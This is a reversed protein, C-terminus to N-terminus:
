SKNYRDRLPDLEFAVSTLPLSKNVEFPKPDVRLDSVKLMQTAYQEKTQPM